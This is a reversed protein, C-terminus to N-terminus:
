LLSLTVARTNTCVRVEFVDTAFIYKPFYYHLTNGLMYLVM